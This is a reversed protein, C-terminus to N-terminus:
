NYIIYFPKLPPITESSIGCMEGGYTIHKAEENSGVLELLM